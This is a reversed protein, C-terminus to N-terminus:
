LISYQPKYLTSYYFTFFREECYIDLLKGSHITNSWFSYLATNLNKKKFIHNKQDQLRVSNKETGWLVNAFAM